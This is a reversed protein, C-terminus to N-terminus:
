RKVTFRVTRKVSKQKASDTAQATVQYSGPPLAKRGIRGSFKLSGTGTKSKRTLKGATVLRTCAKHKRLAKTPKVCAKGKRRGPLRRYFTFTM